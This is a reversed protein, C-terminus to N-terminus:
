SLHVYVFCVCENLALDSRISSSIGGPKACFLEGMRICTPIRKRVYNPSMVLVENVMFFIVGMIEHSHTHYSDVSLILHFCYTSGFSHDTLVTYLEVDIDIVQLSLSLLFHFIHFLFSFTFSYCFLFFYLFPARLFHFFSLYLSHTLSHFLAGSISISTSVLYVSISLRTYFPLSSTDSM